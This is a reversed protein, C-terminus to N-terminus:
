VYIIKLTLMSFYIIPAKLHSTLPSTNLHLTSTTPLEITHKKYPNITFLIPLFSASLGERTDCRLAKYKTVRWNFQLYIKM